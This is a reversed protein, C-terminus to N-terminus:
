HKLDLISPRDSRTRHNSLSAREAPIGAVSPSNANALKETYRAYSGDMAVELGTERKTESLPVPANWRVVWVQKGATMSPQELAVSTIWTDSRGNEKLYATAIKVAEDAAIKPAASAVSALAAFLLPLLVKM